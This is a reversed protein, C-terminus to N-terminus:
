KYVRGLYLVNLRYLDIIYARPTFDGGLPDLTSLSLRTNRTLQIEMNNAIVVYIFIRFQDRRRDNNM